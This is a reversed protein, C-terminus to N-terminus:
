PNSGAVNIMGGRPTNFPSRPVTSWGSPQLSGWGSVFRPLAPESANAPVRHVGAEHWRAIVASMGLAFWFWRSSYFVYGGLGSVLTAAVSALFGMAYYYWELFGSRLFFRSSHILWAFCSFVLWGISFLGLMGTEGVLGSVSDHAMLAFHTEFGRLGAGFLPNEKLLDFAMGRQEKILDARGETYKNVNPGIVIL